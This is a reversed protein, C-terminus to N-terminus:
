SLIQDTVKGIRPTHTLEETSQDFAEHKYTNKCAQSNGDQKQWVFKIKSILADM